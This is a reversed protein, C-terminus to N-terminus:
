GGVERVSQFYSIVLSIVALTRILVQKRLYSNVLSEIAKETENV